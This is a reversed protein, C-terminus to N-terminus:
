VVARRPRQGSGDGNTPPASGSAPIDDAFLDESAAGYSAAGYSARAERWSAAVRPTVLVLLCWMFFAVVFILVATTSDAAQNITGGQAPGLQNIQVRFEDPVKQRVQIEQVYEIIAAAAANALRVAEEATPAQSSITVVPIGSETAAYLRYANGEIRVENAREGASQGANNAQRAATGPAPQPGQTVILSPPIGARKALKNKVPDSRIIRSYLGARVMLSDIPPSGPGGFAGLPSQPADVLVQSSAVGASLSSKKFSPPRYLSLFALVIAIGIGALLWSRRRWFEHLIYGIEM